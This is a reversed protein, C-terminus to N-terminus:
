AQAGRVGLLLSVGAALFGLAAVALLDGRVGTFPLRGGAATAARASALGGPALGAPAAGSTAASSPSVL